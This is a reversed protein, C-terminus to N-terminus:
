PGNYEGAASAAAPTRTDAPTGSALPPSVGAARQLALKIEPIKMFDKWVSTDPEMNAMALYAPGVTIGLVTPSIFGDDLDVSDTFGYRGWIKAGYPGNRWAMMDLSVVDPVFMVSAVTCGICVLSKYQSADYVKYSRKPAEGASFGWFGAQLTKNAPEHKILERHWQTVLISNAHYNTYGDQFGRFDVFLQSYQHLFLPGNFGMIKEGNPLTHLSRDWATWVERPLPKAPHGLGLLLLIMQEAYMDWQSTGYGIHGGWYAMSITKKKPKAGGDTMMDHFDMDAYLEAALQSVEKDKLVQAAYLAGAMFLATDITSYECARLREGTEWDIFHYFWGKYRGVKAKAFRLTKLAYDRAYDREVMGRLSANAIVALGFGTAAISATRNSAPTNKYNEAQDRVLGTEPHSHDLFFQLTRVELESKLDQPAAM